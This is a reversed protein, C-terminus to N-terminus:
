EQSRGIGVTSDRRQKARAFFREIARADDQELLDRLRRLSRSLRDLSGLVAQRNTTMIDRWMEPDGAALRTMDRLGTASVPLQKDKPLLMLLAALAHPVHSVAAVARDHEAPALRLTRMGLARWIAETRRVRAAPTHKTPTVICLAGAILDADAFAPGKNENGAMPHSGVFAGGRGCIREGVRVVRAKTSGVDTVLAGRRLVPHIKRLHKEFAGVPTALIVLDSKSAPQTADLYAEHVCKHKMALALSSERRGVGAVIARPFRRRIALGISGGLLGVGVITVHQIEVKAM